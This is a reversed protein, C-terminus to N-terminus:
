TWLAYLFGGFCFAAILMLAAFQVFMARLALVMLNNKLTVFALRYINYFFQKWDILATVSAYRPFMLCAILALCDIGTERAWVGLLPIFVHFCHPWPFSLRVPIHSETSVSFRMHGTYQSQTLHSTWVLNWSLCAIEQGFAVDFGNQLLMWAFCTSLKVMSSVWTGTFYM